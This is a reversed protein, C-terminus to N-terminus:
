PKTPQGSSARSDDKTRGYDPGHRKLYGGRVLSPGYGDRDAQGEHLGFPYDGTDSRSRGYAREDEPGGIASYDPPDPAAPEDHHAGANGRHVGQDRNSWYERDNPRPIRHTM